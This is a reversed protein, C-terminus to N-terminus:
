SVHNVGNLGFEWEKSVTYLDKLNKSLKVGSGTRSMLGPTQTKENLTGHSGPTAHGGHSVRILSSHVVPCVVPQITIRRINTHMNKLYCQQGGFWLIMEQHLDELRQQLQFQQSFLAEADLLSMSAWFGESGADAAPM